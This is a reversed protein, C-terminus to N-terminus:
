LCHEPTNRRHYGVAAVLFQQQCSDTVGGKRPEPYTEGFQCRLRGGKVMKGVQRARFQVDM